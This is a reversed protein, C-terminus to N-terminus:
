PTEKPPPGFTQAIKGALDLNRTILMNHSKLASILRPSATCVEKYFAQLANESQLMDLLQNFPLGGAQPNRYSGRTLRFQMHHHFSHWDPAHAHGLWIDTSRIRNEIPHGRHTAGHIGLRFRPIGTRTFLKGELHSIFGGRLYQGFTPYLEGLLSKHKGAHRPALKFQEPPPGSLQEAPNMVLAALTPDAAALPAAVTTDPLLFEDMDIHALWDLDDSNNYELTAIMAQRRQHPDPRPKAQAAWFAADCPITRIQPHQLYAIQTPDPDDLYLTVRAAGLSLHWAAFGAIGQTPGRAMTVTGWRLQAPDTPGSRPIPAPRPPKPDNM